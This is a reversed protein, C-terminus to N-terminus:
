EEGKRGVFRGAGGGSPSVPSRHGGKSPSQPPPNEFDDIFALLEREVNEIDHLVENDSFRIVTFGVEELDEQKKLDKDVVEKILHSFGDTEVVLMLEPSMFDAIYNLIPRQRKFKYGQLKGSKLVFKWLCAEAKTMNKRLENAYSQLKNNYHYNNSKSARQM